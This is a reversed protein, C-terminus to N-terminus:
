AENRKGRPVRTDPTASRADASTKDEIRAPYKWLGNGHIDRSVDDAPRIAM